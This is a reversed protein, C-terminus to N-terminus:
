RRRKRKMADRLGPPTPFGRPPGRRRGKASKRASGARRGAPAPRPTTARQAEPTAARTGSPPAVPGDPRLEPPTGAACWGNPPAEGRMEFLFRSPMTEVRKGFRARTAAYSITLRTQARTIGVYALRREEEDGSDQVARKHPLIGEELGVLYVHPFELGKAAHLTMLTVADKGQGKDDGGPRDDASSLAIEEVFGGLSPAEARQVYNEAMNLFESIAQARLDRTEQDPYVRVLEVQYDVADIMRRLGNVLERSKAGEALRALSSRLTQMANMARDSVGEISASMDLAMPVSVGKKTAFDLVADISSKGVGRPPTNVVRLFSMEDLPNVMLKVYALLDRIEKRDFFSMGGVLVYPIENARFAQEFVRSQPATRFLVAFDGFSLKRRAMKGVIDFVVSDAEKQEDEHVVLAVDDGSGAHSRLQKEHRAPNNAIVANAADLIQSTSRYNTELRVVVAGPFRKDFDLIQKVDAGRWGYISQDDDGVVCLNNHGGAVGRVIEFQPKNTDQFEDVLVYRYRARFGDRIAPHTRFLGVLKVLLDDFDLSRARRLTADYRKYARGILQDEDDFAGDLFQDATVLQNKLLSIKSQLDRPRMTAEPVHLERLASKVAAIQDSADCITFGSPMEIADAHARLARVCFAHFTGVTLAKAQKKGVLAAIRERMEGAAKNTFTMALIASAPVGKEMLHAIRYTIVRTKGTGAGALVLVPGETTEAALRQEPNLRALLRSM